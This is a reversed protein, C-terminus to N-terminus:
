KNKPRRRKLLAGLGGIVLISMTAPEPVTSYVIYDGVQESTVATTGGNGIILNANGISAAYTGDNILKITGTGVLDIASTFETKIEFYGGSTWGFEPANVIMSSGNNITMTSDGLKGLFGEAVTLTAAATGNGIVITCAGDGYIKFEEIDAAGNIDMDFTYGSGEAAKFEGGTMSGGVDITIDTNSDEAINGDEDWTEGSLVTKSGSFSAFAPAAMVATMMVVTMIEAFKFMKMSGLVLTKFGESMMTTQQEIRTEPVADVM